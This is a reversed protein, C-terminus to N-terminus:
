LCFVSRYHLICEGTGFQIFHKSFPLFFNRGIKM